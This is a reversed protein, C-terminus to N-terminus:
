SGSLAVPHAGDATFPTGKFGYLTASTLSSDDYVALNLGNDAAGDTISGGPFYFRSEGYYNNTNQPSYRINYQGLGNTYVYTPYANIWKGDQYPTAGAGAPLLAAVLLLVVTAALLTRTKKM